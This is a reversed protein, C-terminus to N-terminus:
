YGKLRLKVAEFWASAVEQAAHEDGMLHLNMPVPATLSVADISKSQTAGSKALYSELRSAFISAARGAIPGIRHEHGHANQISLHLSGIEIGRKPSTRASGTKM